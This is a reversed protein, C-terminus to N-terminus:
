VVRPARGVECLVVAKGAGDVASCEVVRGDHCGWAGGQWEGHLAGSWQRCECGAARWCRKSRRGRSAVTILGARDWKRQRDDGLGRPDVNARRGRLAIPSCVGAWRAANIQVRELLAAGGERGKGLPLVVVARRTAERPEGKLELLLQRLRRRAQQPERSGDPLTVLGAIEIVLKKM